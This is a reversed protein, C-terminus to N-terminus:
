EDNNSGREEARDKDLKMKKVMVRCVLFKQNTVAEDREKMADDREKMVAANYASLRKFNIRTDTGIKVAVDLERKLKQNSDALAKIRSTRAFLRGHLVKNESAFAKNASRLRELEKVREGMVDLVEKETFLESSRVEKLLMNSDFKRLDFMKSIRKKFKFDAQVNGQLWNFFIQFCQGHDEATLNDKSSGEKKEDNRSHLFENLIMELLDPALYEVEKFNSVMKLTSSMNERIKSVTFTRVGDYIEVELFKLLNLLILLDNVDLSEFNMHGTYYYKVVLDLSTQSAWVNLRLEKRSIEELKNSFFTSKTVLVTKNAKAAIGNDLVINIDYKDDKLFNEAFLLLQDKPVDHNTTM